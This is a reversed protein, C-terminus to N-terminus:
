STDTQKPKWSLDGVVTLLWLADLGLLIQLATRDEVMGERLNSEVFGGVHICAM